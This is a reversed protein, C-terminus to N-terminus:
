PKPVNPVLNLPPVPEGKPLTMGLSRILAEARNMAADAQRNVEDCERQVEEWTKLKVKPAPVTGTASAVPASSPMPVNPVLNLPPVPKGKPLTMGLSRILAEARNMAADAQRNVEDCERQVEEWTKLKVKPAVPAPAPAADGDSAVTGCAALLVALKVFM